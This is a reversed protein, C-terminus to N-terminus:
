GIKNNEAVKEARSRDLSGPSLAYLSGGIIIRRSADSRLFTGDCM